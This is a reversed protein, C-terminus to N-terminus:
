SYLMWVFLPGTKAQRNRDNDYQEKSEFNKLPCEITDIHRLSVTQDQPVFTRRQWKQRAITRDCLRTLKGFNIFITPRQFDADEFFHSPWASVKQPNSPPFCLQNGVNGDFWAFDCHDGAFHTLIQLVTLEKHVTIQILCSLFAYKAFYESRPGISDVVIGVVDLDNFFFRDLRAQLDFM